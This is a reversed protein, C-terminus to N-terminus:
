LSEFKARVTAGCYNCKAELPGVWDIKEQSIAASCNPCTTPLRVTKIQAGDTRTQGRQSEPIAFSPAEVIFSDVAKTIASGSRCVKVMIIAVIIFFILPVLIILLMFEGFFDFIDFPFDPIQM